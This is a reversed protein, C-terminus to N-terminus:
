MKTAIAKGSFPRWKWQYRLWSRIHARLPKNTFLNKIYGGPTASAKGYAHHLIVDPFYYVPRHHEWTRRCLDIDEFYMWFRDDFGGLEKYLASSIFMASGQVWDVLRRDRLVRERMLFHDAYKKGFETNALLTRQVIPMYWKPFRRHTEQLEGNLHHIRPAVIGTWPRERMFAHLRDFITDDVLITDPNLLFFFEADIEQAARNCSNGFGYNKDRLIITANPLHEKVLEHARLDPSGNDVLVFAVKLSSAAVARTISPLCEDVIKNYSVMIIAIDYTM